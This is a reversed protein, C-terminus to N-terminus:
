MRGNLGELCRRLEQREIGWNKGFHEFLYDSINMSIKFTGASIKFPYYTTSYTNGAITIKVEVPDDSNTSVEFIVPNGFFSYVSPHKTVTIM